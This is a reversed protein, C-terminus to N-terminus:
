SIASLGAACRSFAVASSITAHDTSVYPSRSATTVLKWYSPITITSMAARFDFSTRTTVRSVPRNGASVYSMISATRPRYPTRISNTEGSAESISVM